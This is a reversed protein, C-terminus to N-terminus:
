ASARALRLSCSFALSPLVERREYGGKGFVCVRGLLLRPWICRSPQGAPTQHLPYCLLATQRERVARPLHQQVTVAHLLRERDRVARGCGGREACRGAGGAFPLVRTFM